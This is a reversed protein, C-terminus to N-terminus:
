SVVAYVVELYVVISNKVINENHIELKNTYNHNNKWCINMFLMKPFCQVLIPVLKKTYM